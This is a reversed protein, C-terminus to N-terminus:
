GHSVGHIISAVFAMVHVPTFSKEARHHYKSAEIYIAGAHVKLKPDELSLEAVMSILKCMDNVPNKSYYEVFEPFSKGSSILTIIDKAIKNPNGKLIDDYGYQGDHKYGEVVKRLLNIMSRYDPFLSEIYNKIMEKHEEDTPIDNERLIKLIIRSCQGKLARHDPKQPIFSVEEFRKRIPAEFRDPNNTTFIFSIMHHYEDYFSKIVDLLTSSLKDAEDVIMVKKDNENNPRVTLFMNIKEMAGEVTRENKNEVSLTDWVVGLNEVLIRAACSKGLGNSGTFMMWNISDPKQIELTKRVSPPLFLDDLTKPKYKEQYLM